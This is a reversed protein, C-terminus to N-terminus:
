IGRLRLTEDCRQDGLDDVVQLDGDPIDVDSILVFQADRAYTSEGELCISLQDLCESAEAGM